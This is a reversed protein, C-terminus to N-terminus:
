SYKQIKDVLMNSDAGSFRDVEKGNKIFVFTPMSRVHYTAALTSCEDVNVKLVSCRTGYSREIAQLKPAMQRCPGCWDAMFDAVILKSGATRVFQNFDSQPLPILLPRGPILIQHLIHQNLSTLSLYPPNIPSQPVLSAESVSGCVALVM